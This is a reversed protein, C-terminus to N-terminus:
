AAEIMVVRHGNAAHSPSMQAAAMAHAPMPAHRSACVSSCKGGPLYDTATDACRGCCNAVGLEFQLDSLSEAGADVCARVQKETVANCICIYM